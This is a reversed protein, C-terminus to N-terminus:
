AASAGRNAQVCLGDLLSRTGRSFGTTTAIKQDGQVVIVSVGPFPMGGCKVTGSYESAMIPFIAIWAGILTGFCTYMRNRAM